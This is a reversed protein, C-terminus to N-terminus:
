VGGGKGGGVLVATNDAVAWGLDVMIATATAVAPDCWGNVLGSICGDDVRGSCPLVEGLATSPGGAGWGGVRGGPLAARADQLAVAM